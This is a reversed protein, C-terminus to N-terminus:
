RRSYMIHLDTCRTCCHPIKYVHSVRSWGQVVPTSHALYLVSAASSKYQEATFPTRPQPQSRRYHKGVATSKMCCHVATTNESSVCPRMDEWTASVSFRVRSPATGTSIRRATARRINAPPKYTSMATSNPMELSDTNLMMHCTTSAMLMM